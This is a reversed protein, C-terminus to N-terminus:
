DLLTLIQRLVAQTRQPAPATVGLIRLGWISTMLFAALARPDKDASLEGSAQAAELARQFHAEITDFHRNVRKRVAKNQRALELVTNVLFCSRRAQANALDEALQRFYARIGTLPSDAQTLFAAIRAASREGYHDLAALFLGEKSQFAAYLSGPKLQTAEVLEAISTACYGQDWFAEMAKELVDEREFQIPRAM